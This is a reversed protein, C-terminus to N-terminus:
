DPRTDDSGVRRSAESPVLVPGGKPRGKARKARKRVSNRQTGPRRRKAGNRAKVWGDADRRRESV